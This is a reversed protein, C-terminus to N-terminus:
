FSPILITVFTSAFKLASKGNQHRSCITRREGRLNSKLTLLRVHTYDESTRIDCFVREVESAPKIMVSRQLAGQGTHRGNVVSFLVSSYSM